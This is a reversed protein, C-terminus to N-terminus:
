DQWVRRHAHSESRAPRDPNRFETPSPEEAGAWVPGPAWGAEQVIPVPNREQAYLSLFTIKVVCGM